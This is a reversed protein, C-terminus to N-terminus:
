GAAAAVVQRAVEAADDDFVVLRVAPRHASGSTRACNGGPACRALGEGIGAVAQRIADAVPWGYAGASVLPFAISAAGVEHGRRISNVYCARLVASRDEEASWVPGVTHIVWRAALRGATTTVAEGAPLGDPYREARVKRCARIISPGGRRHIAGDVGGGGLLTSNAANVIADARENTIDGQVIVISAMSM